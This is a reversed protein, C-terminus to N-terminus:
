GGKPVEEIALALAEAYDLQVTDGIKLGKVFARGEDSAIRHAILEGSALSFVVIDHPVDISEIKVRLSVAIGVGGAPKEGLKARAATVNGKGAAASEGAPRLSAALTQKYRVSLVDGVEIQDFNRVGPGTQVEVIRGDESRLTVRRTDRDLSVVEATASVENSFEASTKAPATSKAPPQAQAPPQGATPQSTDETPGSQCAALALAAVLLFTSASPIIRHIRSM